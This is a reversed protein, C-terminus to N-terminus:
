TNTLTFVGAVNITITLAAATTSVSGGATELDVFAVIDETAALVGDVLANRVIAAYKATITSAAWVQDDCDFMIVLGTRAVTCVLVKGHTTYGGGAAVQAASIDSYAAHVSQNPTYASTLLVMRFTHTDLDLTARAIKESAAGYVKFAGAPM